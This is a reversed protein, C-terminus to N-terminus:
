IKAPDSAQTAEAVGGNVDAKVKAEAAKDEAKEDKIDKLISNDFRVKPTDTMGAAVLKNLTADAARFGKEGVEKRYAM